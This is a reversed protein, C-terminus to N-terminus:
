KMLVMKGSVQGFDGSLRYLYTGSPCGAADWVAAYSGADLQGAMLEAVRQGQLNFISLTVQSAEPLSFEITTEPNFPNPYNQILAMMSPISITSSIEGIEGGGFISGYGDPIWGPPVIQNNNIYDLADKATGIASGGNTIMDAGFAIAEGVTRDDESIVQDLPLFEAGVDMLVALLQKKTKNVMGSPGGNPLRFTDWADEPELPNGPNGGVSSVGEIPFYTAGNFQDYIANFIDELEDPSIQAKGKGTMAKKCQNKWFGITHSEPLIIFCRYFDDGIARPNANWWSGQYPNTAIVVGDPPVVELWYDLSYPVDDFYFIGDPSSLGHAAMFEEDTYTVTSAYFSANDYLLVTVDNLGEGTSCSGDYFRVQGYVDVTQAFASTGFLLIAVAIIVFIRPLTM